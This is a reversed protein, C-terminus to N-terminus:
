FLCCLQVFLILPRQSLQTDLKSNGIWVGLPAQLVTGRLAWDGSDSLMTSGGVM